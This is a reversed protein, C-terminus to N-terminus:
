VTRTEYVLTINTGFVRIYCYVLSQFDLRYRGEHLCGVAKISTPAVAYLLRHIFAHFLLNRDMIADLSCCVVLIAKKSTNTPANCIRLDTLIYFSENQIILWMLSGVVEALKSRIQM